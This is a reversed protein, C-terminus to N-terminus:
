QLRYSGEWSVNAGPFDGQDAVTILNGNREFVLSYDASPDQYSGNSGKVTATGTYEIGRSSFLFTFSDASSNTITLYCQSASGKAMIYEGNWDVAQAAQSQSSASEASSSEGSASESASASQSASQPASSAPRSSSVASSAQSSTSSSPAASSSGEAPASSGGFLGCATLTLGLLGAAAPILWTKRKM